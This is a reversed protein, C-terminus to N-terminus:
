AVKFTEFQSRLAATRPRLLTQTIATKPLKLHGPLRLNAAGPSPRAGMQNQFWAWLNVRPPPDPGTRKETCNM